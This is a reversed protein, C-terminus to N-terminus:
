LSRHWHPRMAVVETAVDVEVAVVNPPPLRQLRRQPLVLLMPLVLQLRILLPLVVVGAAVEADVEDVAAVVVMKRQQRRRSRSCPHRGRKRLNIAIRTM